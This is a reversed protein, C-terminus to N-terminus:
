PNTPIGQAELPREPGDLLGLATLDRRLAQPSRFRLATMGAAQAAAVNPESDDIFLTEGATLGFGDLLHRFIEPDPKKLRIEGSVVIGDFWQLFDFRRRAIPFKEASWNTLAYLPMRQAKLAALIEVSGAIPGALMEEWRADYAEILAAHTPHQAVLLAVADAFPRGGDQEENWAPTCVETLFAEMGAEDGDFLKRYLYRPNWDILVGGLDFVAARINSAM